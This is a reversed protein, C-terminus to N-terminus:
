LCSKILFIPSIRGFFPLDEIQLPGAEDRLTSLPIFYTFAFGGGGGGWCLDASSNLV